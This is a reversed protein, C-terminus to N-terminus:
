GWQSRENMSMASLFLYLLVFFGLMIHMPSASVGAGATIWPLAIEFLTLILWLVAGWSTAMWLGVAAVSNFIAFVVVSLQWAIEGDEFPQEVDIFGLIRAWEILGRVLCVVALGRMAAILLRTWRTRQLTGKDSRIIDRTEQRSSPLEPPTPPPFPWM